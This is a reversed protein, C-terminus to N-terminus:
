DVLGPITVTTHTIPQRLTRKTTDGDFLFNCAEEANINQKQFNYKMEHFCEVWSDMYHVM